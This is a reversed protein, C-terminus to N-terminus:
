DIVGIRDSLHPKKEMFQCDSYVDIIVNHMRDNMSNTHLYNSFLHVNENINDFGFPYRVTNFRIFLTM